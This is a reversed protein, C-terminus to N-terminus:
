HATITNTYNTSAPSFNVNINVNKNNNAPLIKFCYNWQSDDAPYLYWYSAPTTSGPDPNDSNISGYWETSAVGSSNVVNFQYKYRSDAGWPEQPIVLPWNDLEWQGNGIYPLTFWIKGDPASWLGVSVIQTITAAANSLDLSLRYVNKSGTVTTSGNLVVTNNNKISYTTPTGSRKDILSYTGAQLSTYIEFVGDGTKKLAIAKTIDSGPETASGTLYLSDPLVAFGAPRTVQITQTTTSVKANIAKSVIVAWKLTGSTSSAV